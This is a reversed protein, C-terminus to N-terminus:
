LLTLLFDLAKRRSLITKILNLQEPSKLNEQIKPDASSAKVADDIENQSVTIKEENAIKELILEIKIAEESQKSYEHRLLQPDKGISALYGELTLGLKEIRSLLQSLRSNVEEDILIKPVILTITQLLVEIVKQEKEVRTPEKTEKDQGKEPTWIKSQRFLGKIKDKYNGLEFTPIVCTIARVQWNEGEASSVLEFKPFVSPKIKENTLAYSLMKPLIGALIKEILKERSVHEKVKESPANGKRFGPVEIDKGLEYLAKKQNDFIMEKPITFTIQITGDSEKAVTYNKGASDNM